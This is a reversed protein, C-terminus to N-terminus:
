IQEWYHNLEEPEVVLVDGFYKYVKDEQGDPHNIEILDKSDVGETDFDLVKVDIGQDAFVKTVIGGEIQVIVKTM